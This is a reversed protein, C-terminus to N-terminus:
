VEREAARWENGTLEYGGDDTYVREELWVLWAQLIKSHATREYYAYTERKLLEKTGAIFSDYVAVTRNADGSYGDTYAGEFISMEGNEVAQMTSRTSIEAHATCLTYKKMKKGKRWQGSPRSGFSENYMM